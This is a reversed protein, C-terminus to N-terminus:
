RKRRAHKKPQFFDKGQGFLNQVTGITRHLVQRVEGPVHTKPLGWWKETEDGLGTHYACHLIQEMVHAAAEDVLNLADFCATRVSKECWLYRECRVGKNWRIVFAFLREGVPEYVTGGDLGYWGDYDVRETRKCDAYLAVFVYSEKGHRPAGDFRTNWGGNFSIRCPSGLGSRTNNECDETEWERYFTDLGSDSAGIALQTFHSRTLHIVWDSSLLRQPLNSLGTTMADEM